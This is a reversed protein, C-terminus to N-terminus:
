AASARPKNPPRKPETPPRAPPLPRPSVRERPRETEEDDKAYLVDASVRVARKRRETLKESLVEACRQFFEPSAVRHGHEVNSYANRNYEVLEAFSGTMVVAEIRLRRLEPTAFPMVYVYTSEGCM